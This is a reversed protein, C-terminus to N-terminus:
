VEVRIVPKIATGSLTPIPLSNKIRIFIWSELTERLNKKCQALTKGTAWVGKCLPIEGYYPEKDKIREYKAKS